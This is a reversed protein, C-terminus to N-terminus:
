NALKAEIILRNQGGFGKTPVARQFALGARELLSKYQSLTLEQGDSLVMFVLDIWKAVDFENKSNDESVVNEIILLSKRPNSSHQLAAHVNKLLILAKEIPHDHLVNKLIYIDSGGAVGNQAFIDSSILKVNKLHDNKENLAQVIPRDILIGQSQPSHELIKLLLTGEGGGIDTITKAYSFDYAAAIAAIDQKGYGTMTGNFIKAHDPNHSLYDYIEYGTHQNWAIDGGKVMSLLYMWSGYRESSGNLRAVNRQSMPHDSTLLTSELTLGYRENDDITFFGINQLARMVRLLRQSDCQAIKAIDDIKLLGEKKLIDPVGLEAIVYIAQTIWYGHISKQVNEMASKIDGARNIGEM